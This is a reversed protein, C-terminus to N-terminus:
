TLCLDKLCTECLHVESSAPTVNAWNNFYLTYSLQISDKLNNKNSNYPYM